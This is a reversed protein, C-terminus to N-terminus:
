TNEDFCRFHLNREASETVEPTFLPRRGHDVDDGGYDGIRMALHEDTQTVYM